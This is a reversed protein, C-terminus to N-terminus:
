LVHRHFVYGAGVFRFGLREYFRLSGANALQTGTRVKDRGCAAQAFAIMAAGLGRGRCDAEVGVLDIVLPGGSPLLAQLFGAVRGQVVAVTMQDGRRGRFFNGAWEAKLANAVALPIREDLHFRSRSFARAALQAVAEADEPRAPRIEASAAPATVPATTELTVNSDILLFGARELAHAARLDDVAVKAQVFGERGQAPALREAALAIDSEGQLPRRFTVTFAELGLKAGLWDDPTLAVPSSQDPTARM